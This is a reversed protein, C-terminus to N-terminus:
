TPSPLLTACESISAAALRPADIETPVGSPSRASRRWRRLRQLESVDGAPGHPHDVIRTSATGAGIGDVGVHPGAHPLFVFGSLAALDERRKLDVLLQKGMRCFMGDEHVAQRRMAAVLHVAATM